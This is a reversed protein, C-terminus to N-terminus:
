SFTLNCGESLLQPNIQRWLNAEDMSFAFADFGKSVSSLEPCAQATNFHRHQDASIFGARDGALFARQYQHRHYRWLGCQARVAETALRWRPSSLPLPPIAFIAAVHASTKLCPLPSSFTILRRYHHIITTRPVAASDPRWRSSHALEGPHDDM